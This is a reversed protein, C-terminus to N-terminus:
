TTEEYRNAINDVDDHNLHISDTYQYHIKVGCDYSADFVKNMIRKSMSLKDVGAHVYKVHSMVLEVGKIYYRVNVELASYICNYNLSVYRESDHQSHKIITDTEIPKIITKGDMSNM